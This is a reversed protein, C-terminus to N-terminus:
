HWSQPRLDERMDRAVIGRLAWLAGTASDCVGDTVPRMDVVLHIEGDLWHVMRWVDVSEPGYAATDLRMFAISHLGRADRWAPGALRKARDTTLPTISTMESQGPDAM